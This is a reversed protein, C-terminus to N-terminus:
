RLPGPRAGRDPRALPHRAFPGGGRRWRRARGAGIQPLRGRHGLADDDGEGARVLLVLGQLTLVGALRAPPQADVDLDEEGLVVGHQLDLLEEAEDVRAFPLPRRREQEDVRADGVAELADGAVRDLGADAPDEEVAGRGVHVGQPALVRRSAIAATVM